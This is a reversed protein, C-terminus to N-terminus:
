DDGLRDPYRVLEGNALVIDAEPVFTTTAVVELAGDPDGLADYDVDPRGDAGTCVLLYREGDSWVLYPFGWPDTRPIPNVGVSELAGALADVTLLRQTPGPYAGAGRNQNGKYLEFAIAIWHLDAKAREALEERPAPRVEFDGDAFVIDREPSDPPPEGRTEEKDWDDIYGDAGPSTITYDTADIQFELGNGWGDRDPLAEGFTEGLAEAVRSAPVRKAGLDPLGEHAEQYSELVAGAVRMALLTRDAADPKEGARLPPAAAAPTAALMLLIMMHRM